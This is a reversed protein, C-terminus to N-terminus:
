DPWFRKLRDAIAAGARQVADEPEIWFRQAIERANACVMVPDHHM